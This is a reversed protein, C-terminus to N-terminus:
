ITKSPNCTFRIYIQYKNVENRGLMEMRKFSTEYGAQFCDYMDNYQQPWEYPPLCTGSTYSCIILTLIIKMKVVRM